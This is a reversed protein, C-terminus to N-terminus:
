ARRQPDEATRALARVFDRLVFYMVLWWFWGTGWYKPYFSCRWSIRTGGEPLGELVTEARYDRMPFGSLLTYAVLRDPVVEVIEELMVKRGTRFIRQAGVGHIEDRGPKALEFSDIMSWFPYGASNKVLRYIDEPAATSSFAAGTQLKKM